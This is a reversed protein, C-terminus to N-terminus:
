TLLTLTVIGTPGSGRGCTMRLLSVCSLPPRGEGNM